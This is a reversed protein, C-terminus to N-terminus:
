NDAPTWAFVTKQIDINKRLCKRGIDTWGEPCRPICGDPGQRTFFDNCLPVFYKLSYRECENGKNFKQCDALTDYRKTKYGDPKYCDMVRDVFGKPCSNACVSHGINVLGASCKKNALGPGKVECNGAGHVAECRSIAGKTSPNCKMIASRTAESLAFYSTILNTFVNTEALAQLLRGKQTATNKENAVTVEAKDKAYEGVNNDDITIKSLCEAVNNASATTAFCVLGILLVLKLNM